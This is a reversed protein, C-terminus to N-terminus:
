EYTVEANITFRSPPIITKVQGNARTLQIDYYYAGPKLERTDEPFITILAVGDTFETVIKQLIKEETYTSRKVTFYVIDGEVLPIDVGSENRCSVKICESDGRIMSINTGQIKM